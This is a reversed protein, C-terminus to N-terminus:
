SGAQKRARDQIAKKKLQSRIMRKFYIGASHALNREARLTVAQAAMRALHERPARANEADALLQDVFRELRFVDITEASFDAAQEAARHYGSTIEEAIDVGRLKRSCCLGSFNRERAAAFNERSLWGPGGFHDYVYVARRARLAYPVTKGITVVADAAGFDAPRLRHGTVDGGTGFHVVEIGGSRLESAADRLEGPAHNSVILVREPMKKLPPPAMEFAAPAANRFMKVLPRPLGGEVVGDVAKESTVVFLQGLLGEAVVGPQAYSWNRDLHAFSFFTGEVDQDSPSYHFIPELRNQCWVLDYQFPKAELPNALLRAGAKKALSKMPDAIVWACIVVEWNRALLEEALEMIVLESGAISVFAGNCLLAM